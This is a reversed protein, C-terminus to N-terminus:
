QDREMRQDLQGVIESRVESLFSNFDRMMITRNIPLNENLAAMLEKVASAYLDTALEFRRKIEEIDRPGATRAQPTLPRIGSVVELIGRSAITGIPLRPNHSM